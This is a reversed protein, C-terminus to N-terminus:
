RGEVSSGGGPPTTPTGITWSTEFETSGTQTFQHALGCEELVGRVADPADTEIDHQGPNFNYRDEAELTIEATALITGDPQRTLTIESNSWVSHGGIAKQWDETEPYPPGGPLLGGHLEFTVSADETDPLGESMGAYIDNVANQVDSEITKKLEQGAPDNEIYEDYDFEFDAGGGTLFHEYGAIGNELGLRSDINDVGPIWSIADAGTAKAVEEAYFLREDMTPDRTPMPTPDNPDAPNQLFGNDHNITPHQPPGVEYTAGSATATGTSLETELEAMQIEDEISKLDDSVSRLESLAEVYDKDAVMGDISALDSTIGSLRRSMEPTASATVDTLRADVAARETEYTAKADRQDEYNQYIPAIDRELEDLKETADAWRQDGVAQDIEGLGAVIPDIESMGFGEVETVKYQLDALDSARGNWIDRNREVEARLRAVMQQLDNIKSQIRDLTAQEQPDIGDSALAERRFDAEKQTFQSVQLEAAEIAEIKANIPM